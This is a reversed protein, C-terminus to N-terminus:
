SRVRQVQRTSRDIFMEIPETPEGSPQIGQTRYDVRIVGPRRIWQELFKTVYDLQGAHMQLCASEELVGELPVGRTLPQDGNQITETVHCKWETMHVSSFMRWAFRETTAEGRWYYGAPILTQSVLLLGIGWRAWTRANGVPPGARGLEAYNALDLPQDAGESPLEGVAAADAASRLRQSADAPSPSRRSSTKRPRKLM